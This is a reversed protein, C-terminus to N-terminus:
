KTSKTLVELEKTLNKLLDKSGFVFSPYMFPRPMLNVQKIGKGKALLAQEKFEKPVDVLGGTGYEVYPAYPAVGGGAEVRYHLNDVKVSQISQALKGFNKPVLSVAKQVMELSTAEINDNVIQEAKSGFKRLEDITKSIGKIGVKAM